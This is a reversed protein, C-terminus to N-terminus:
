KRWRETVVEGARAGSEEEVKGRENGDEGQVAREVAAVTVPKGRLSESV